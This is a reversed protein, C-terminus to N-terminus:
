RSHRYDWPRVSNSHSWVGRRAAQAQSEIVALLGGNPCDGSYQAYVIVSRRGMDIM